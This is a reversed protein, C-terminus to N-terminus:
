WGRARPRLGAQEATTVGRGTVSRARLPPRLHDAARRVAGLRGADGALDPDAAGDRRRRARDGGDVARLDGARRVVPRQVGRLLGRRQIRRDQRVM